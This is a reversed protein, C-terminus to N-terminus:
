WKITRIKSKMSVSDGSAHLKRLKMVRWRWWIRGRRKVGVKRKSRSAVASRRRLGEM